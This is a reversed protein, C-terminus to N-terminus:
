CMRLDACLMFVGRPGRVLPCRAANPCAGHFVTLRQPARAGQPSAGRSRCPWRPHAHAAPLRSDEGQPPQEAPVHAQEGSAGTANFIQCGVVLRQALCATGAATPIPRHVNLARSARTLGSPWVPRGRGAERTEPCSQPHCGSARRKGSPCVPLGGNVLCVASRGGLSHVVADARFFQWATVGYHVPGPQRSAITVPRLPLAVHVVQPCVQPIDTPRARPSRATLSVSRASTHARESSPSASRCILGCWRAQSLSVRGSPSTSFVASIAVGFSNTLSCSSVRKRASTVCASEASSPRLMWSATVTSGADAPPEAGASNPGAPSAAIGATGSPRLPPLGPIPGPRPPSGASVPSWGTSVTGGGAGGSPLSGAPEPESVGVVSPAAGDRGGSSTGPGEPKSAGPRRSASSRSAGPPDLRAPPEAGYAAGRGPPARSFGLYVNSVNTIPDLLRNAWAAATATASAGALAYLGSNM